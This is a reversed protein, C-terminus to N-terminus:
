PKKGASIYVTERPHPKFESFAFPCKGSLHEKFLKGCNACPRKPPLTYNVSERESM